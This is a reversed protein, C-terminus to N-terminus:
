PELKRLITTIIKIVGLEQHVAKVSVRGEKITIVKNLILEQIKLETNKDTKLLSGDEFTIESVESTRLVDGEKFVNESGIESGNRIVKVNSGSVLMIKNKQNFYFLTFFGVVLAAAVALVPLFSKRQKKNKFKEIKGAADKSRVKKGCEVFLKTELSYEVFEKGTEEDELIEMLRDTEEDDLEGRLFKDFLDYKTM